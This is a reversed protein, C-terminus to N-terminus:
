KCLPSLHNLAFKDIILYCNIAITIKCYLVNKNFLINLYFTNNSQFSNAGRAELAILIMESIHRFIFLLTKNQCLIHISIYIQQVNSENNKNIINKEIIISTFHLM